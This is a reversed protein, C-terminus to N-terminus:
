KVGYTILKNMDSKKIKLLKSLMFSVVVARCDSPYPCVVVDTLNKSEGFIKVDPVEMDVGRFYVFDIRDRHTTPDDAKLIPTWTYGSNEM